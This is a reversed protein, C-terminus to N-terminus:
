NKNKPYCVPLSLDIVPRPEVVFVVVGEGLVVDELVDVVLIFNVVFPFPSSVTICVNM